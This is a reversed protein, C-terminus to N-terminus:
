TNELKEKLDYAEKQTDFGAVFNEFCMERGIGQNQVRSWVEFPSYPTAIVKIFYETQGIKPKDTNIM